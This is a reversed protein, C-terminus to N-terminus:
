TILGDFFKFLRGETIISGKEILSFLETNREPTYKKEGTLYTVSADKPHHLLWRYGEETFLDIDSHITIVIRKIVTKGCEFLNLSKKSFHELYQVKHLVDEWVLDSYVNLEEEVLSPKKVKIIEWEKVDIKQTALFQAFEKHLSEFQEKSLQRYKM